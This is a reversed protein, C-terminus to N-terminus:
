PRELIVIVTSVETGSESFSGEPLRIFRAGDESEVVDSDALTIPSYLRVTERFERYRVGQRFVVGASAVAVLRGGSVLYRWAHLIHEVDAGKAFPPNMVIRPFSSLALNLFDGHYCSVGLGRIVAANVGDIDVAFIADHGARKLAKVIRGHGASPELVHDGAPIEALKVLLEALQEPTEFFGLEKRNDVFGGNVIVSDIAERPRVHAPFLHAKASKNWKGGLAELAKNVEVYLARDLKEEIVAKFEDFIRVGSLAALAQQSLRKM